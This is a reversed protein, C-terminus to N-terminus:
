TVPGTPNSTHYLVDGRRREAEGATYRGVREHVFSALSQTALQLHDESDFITVAVLERPGTRIVSYSAFGLQKSLQTGIERAATDDTSSGEDNLSWINIHAFM